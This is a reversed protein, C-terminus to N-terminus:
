AFPFGARCLVVEVNEGSSPRANAALRILANVGILAKLDGSDLWPLPFATICAAHIELRAPWLTEYPGTVGPLDAGLRASVSPPMPRGALRDLARIVFVNFVAFHSVPNGPLGFAWQRGRRAVILPRGPRSNVKRSLISFGLTELAQPTHDHLGASSGGSVLLLDFVDSRTVAGVLSEAREDVHCRPLPQADSTHLLAHILPGNTDRIKGSVLPENFPVIERGTTVHLVRPRPVVRVTATGVSALVAMEGAGIRSGKALLRAGARTSSGRRRVFAAEPASKLTVHVGSVEADEIMAIASAAPVASGTSVRLALGAAPTQPASDGPLIEGAIAYAGATSGVAVAFGDVASRDFAPQDADAFVDEALVCGVAAEIAMSVSPSTEVGTDILAMVEVVSNPKGQNM